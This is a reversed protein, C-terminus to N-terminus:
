VVSKRDGLPKGWEATLLSPWLGILLLGMSVVLAKMAIM